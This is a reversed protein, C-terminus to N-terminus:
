IVFMATKWTGAVFLRFVDHRVSIFFHTKTWMSLLDVGSQYFVASREARSFAVWHRWALTLKVADIKELWLAISCIFFCRCLSYFDVQFCSLVVVPFLPTSNIFCVVVQYIALKICVMELSCSWHGACYNLPLKCM